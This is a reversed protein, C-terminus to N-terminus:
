AHELTEAIPHLPDELLEPAFAVQGIKVDLRGQPLDPERQELGVDRKGDHPLEGGPYALAGHPRLDRLLERRSLLDRPDHAVLEPGQEAAFVGAEVQLSFGRDDGQDPRWPEPFVM